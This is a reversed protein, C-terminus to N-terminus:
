KEISIQKKIWPYTKLLGYELDESPRWGLSKELLENHSSRGMVGVPGQVNNIEITNKGAIQAILRALDNISIM